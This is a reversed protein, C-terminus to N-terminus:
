KRMSRQALWRVFAQFVGPHAGEVIHVINLDLEVKGASKVDVNIIAGELKVDVEDASSSIRLIMPVHHEPYAPPEAVLMYLAHTGLGTLRAFRVRGNYKIKIPMDIPWVTDRRAILESIPGARNEQPASKAPEDSDSASGDTALRSSRPATQFRPLVPGDGSEELDLREDIPIDLEYGTDEPAPRYEFEGDTTERYTSGSTHEEPIHRLAPAIDEDSEPEPIPIKALTVNDMTRARRAAPLIPPASSFDPAQPPFVFEDEPEEETEAPTDFEGSTFDTPPPVVFESDEDDAISPIDLDCNTDEESRMPTQDYDRPFRFVQRMEGRPGYRQQEVTAKIGLTEQLFSVLAKEGCETVARMWEIALGSPPGKDHRAVEGLLYIADVGEKHEAMFVMAMVTGLPAMKKTRLFIGGVSVDKSIADFRAGDLYCLIEEELLWRRYRRKNEQSDM